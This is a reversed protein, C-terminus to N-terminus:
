FSLVSQLFLVNDVPDKPLDYTRNIEYGAKFLLAQDIKYAVAGELRFVDHDWKGTYLVPRFFANLEKVGHITNFMLGGGRFAAALRPTFAYRVMASYGFAKLDMGNLYQWTNGVVEGSFAFHGLSYELDGGIIRQLYDDPSIGFFASTDPSPSDPDNITESQDNMYPGAAYSAGITLGTMPTLALRVVKGLEHHSNLGDPSYTGTTSIMGNTLAVSYTLIGVSGYVKVGLDYLGQDILRVGDGVIQYEPNLTWIKYDSRCLSTVHENMLPLDFFPNEKPFRDESLNGFPVDIEGAQLSIGSEAIDAVRLAMLDIHPVQDQGMRFNSLFTIDDTVLADSFLDLRWAFSGRGADFSYQSEGDNAKVFATAAEGSIHLQALLAPARALFFLLCVSARKM